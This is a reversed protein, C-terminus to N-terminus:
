VKQKLENSKLYKAKVGSVIFEKISAELDGSNNNILTLLKPANLEGDAKLLPSGPHKGPNFGDDVSLHLFGTKTHWTLAKENHPKNYTLQYRVVEDLYNQWVFLDMSESSFWRRRPEGKIQKVNAIERLM